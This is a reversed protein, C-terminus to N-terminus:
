MAKRTSAKSSKSGTLTGNFGGLKYWLFEFFNFGSEAIVGLANQTKAEV